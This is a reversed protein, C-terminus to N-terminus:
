KVRYPQFRAMHEPRLMGELEVYGERPREAKVMAVEHFGALLKGEAYPIHLVVHVMREGIIREIVDLLEEIGRGELASVFVARPDCAEARAKSAEEELIDIKNFVTVIPIDGIGLEDTLIREVIQKQEVAKPHSVDVVHVLLEAERIEELTARFAAVLTPPLKQIFGVTDTFLVERGGPLTVRRTTPDLTAFLQDAVYVSAGSLKNLLTSKGANTYGVLAVVPIGQRRRQARYLERHTRVEELERRLHEIRKRIERRDTELQTEGPGRLGVGGAGGRAVGGGVQRALHTWQGTLRPLRYEHQALEVQLAGEKTRAHQAFIDLILTTRDIVRVNEGFAKELERQHRPSLEDDFIVVNAQLEELWRRVEEVKGKHIMTSPDVSRVRQYTQGIVHMGATDALLGLEELSSEIDLESPQGALVVGVLFARSVAPTTEEMKKERM